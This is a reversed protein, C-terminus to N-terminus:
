WGHLSLTTGNQSAHIGTRIYGITNDPLDKVAFWRLNSCKDPEANFPTGAWRAATFFVGVRAQGDLDAHHCLHTFALDDSNIDIGVEERAERTAGHLLTEGEDLRGGPVGWHGDAFGTNARQLMLVKEDQTLILHIGVNPRYDEATTM